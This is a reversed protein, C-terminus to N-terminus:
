RPKEESIPTKYHIIYQIPKYLRYLSEIGNLVTFTQHRKCDSIVRTHGAASLSFDREREVRIRPNKNEMRAMADDPLEFEDIRIGM